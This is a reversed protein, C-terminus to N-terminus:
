EAPTNEPEDSNDKWLAEIEATTLAVVPKAELAAVWTTGNFQYFKSDATCFCLSGNVITGDVTKTAATYGALAQYTDVVFYGGKIYEADTLHKSGLSSALQFGVQTAM